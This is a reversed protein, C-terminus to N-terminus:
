HVRMRIRRQTIHSAVIIRITSINELGRFEIKEMMIGEFSISESKLLKMESNSNGNLKIMVDNDVPMILIDLNSSDNGPTANMDKAINCVNMKYNSHPLVVFNYIKIKNYWNERGIKYRIDINSM